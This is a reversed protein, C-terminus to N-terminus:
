PKLESKGRETAGLHVGAPGRPRHAPDGFGEWPGGLHGRGHGAAGEWGLTFLIPESIHGAAHCSGMQIEVFGRLRRKLLKENELVLVLYVLKELAGPPEQFFRELMQTRTKDRMTAKGEKRERKQPFAVM